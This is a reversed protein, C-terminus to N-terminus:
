HTRTLLASYVSRAAKAVSQPSFMYDAFQRARASLAQYGTLDLSLPIMLARAMDAPDGTKVVWGTRLEAAIRPPVVVNEPLTGVATTVVPRGMAQAESVVRGFMPPEVAPVAVVDCAAFAAPMDPCHGTLRLFGDVRLARARATIDRVYREHSRTEGVIAFTTGRLGGDALINVVDPIIHQGNWPAVRGPILVVREGPPVGWAHRVAAIREPRVAAPDFLATDVSRPIVTM